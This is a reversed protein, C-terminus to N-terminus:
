SCYSYTSLSIIEMYSRVDRVNGGGDGGAKWHVGQKTIIEISDVLAGSRVCISEITDDDPIQFHYAVPSDHSSSCLPSRVM